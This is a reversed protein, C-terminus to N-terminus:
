FIKLYTNGILTLEKDATPLRATTNGTTSAHEPLGHKRGM